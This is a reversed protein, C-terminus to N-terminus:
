ERSAYLGWGYALFTLIFALAMSLSYPDNQTNIFMSGSIIATVIGLLGTASSIIWIRSRARIARVLFIIGSLLLLMGLAIHMMLPLQTRAFEWQQAEQNTAPFQVFLNTIMGLVFQVALLGITVMGHIRFSTQRTEAGKITAM